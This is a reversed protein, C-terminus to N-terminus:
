KQLADLIIKQYTKGFNIIRNELQEQATKELEFDPESKKSQWKESLIKALEEPNRPDFYIGQPPNQEKHVNISSLVINKGISKAEEVTSSWGEFFSPNIISICNRMLYYVEIPDVLGLIKINNEINKEKVFEMLDCFYNAHRYDNTGGTFIVQIDKGQQKLISIADFVVKHNKHIWFQNPVYFYKQPLHFKKIIEDKVKDTKQYIDKDPIAVFNLIRGKHAFEPAFKKFDELADQSSFIVLSSEQALQNFVKNRCAIEDKSFMEPLYIHQFDPIWAIFNKNVLSQMHSIIDLKPDYEMHDKKVFDQGKIKYLFKKTYYKFGKKSHIVKAYELLFKAGSDKIPLLYPIIKPCDVRSMAIFLNKFYNVGGMWGSNQECIFGVKITNYNTLKKYKKEQKLLIM